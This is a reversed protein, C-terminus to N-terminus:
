SCPEANTGRRSLRADLPCTASDIPLGKPHMGIKCPRCALQVRQRCDALPRQHCAVVFGSRIFEQGGGCPRAGRPHVACCFEPCEAKWVPRGFDEFCGNRYTVWRPADQRSAVARRGLLANRKLFGQPVGIMAPRLRWASAFQRALEQDQCCESSSPFRLREVATAPAFSHSVHKEGGSISESEPIAVLREREDRLEDDEFDLLEELLRLGAGLRL